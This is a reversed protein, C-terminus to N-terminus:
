LKYADRLAYIYSDDIFIYMCAMNIQCYMHMSAIYLWSLVICIYVNM